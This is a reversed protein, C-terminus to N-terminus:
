KADLLTVPANKPINIEFDAVNNKTNILNGAKDKLNHVTIKFSLWDEEKEIFLVAASDGQVLGVKIVKVTTNENAIVIYNDPDFITESSMPESFTLLIKSPTLLQASAPFSIASILLAVLLEKYGSLLRQITINVFKSLM